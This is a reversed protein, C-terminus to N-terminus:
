ICANIVIAVTQHSDAGRYIQSLPKFILKKFREKLLLGQILDLPKEFSPCCGPSRRFSSTPLQRSPYAADSRECEGRKFFFGLGQEKFGSAITRSITSKWTGAVSNLWLICGSETDDIRAEIQNRSDARTDPHCQANYEGVWSDFAADKAMPTLLEGKAPKNVEELLRRLAKDRREGHILPM